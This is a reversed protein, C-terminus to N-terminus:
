AADIKQGAVLTVMAKKYGSKKGSHRGVQRLKAPMNLVHVSSVNVHYLSEIARRIEIKNASPSVKFIYVGQSALNSAKETVHPGRVFRYADSNGTQPAPTTPRSVAEEVKDKTDKKRNFFSM